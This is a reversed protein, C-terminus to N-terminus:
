PEILPVTSSQSTSIIRKQWKLITEEKEEELACQGEVQLEVTSVKRKTLDAFLM